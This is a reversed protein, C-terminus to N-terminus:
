LLTYANFRCKALLVRRGRAFRSLGSFNSGSHSWSTAIAQIATEGRSLDRGLGDSRSGSLSRGHFERTKLEIMDSVVMCLHKRVFEPLITLYEWKQLFYVM